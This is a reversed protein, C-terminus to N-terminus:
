LEVSIHEGCELRRALLLRTTATPLRPSGRPAVQIREAVTAGGAGPEGAFAALYEVRAEQQKGRKVLTKGRKFAADALKATAEDGAPADARAESGANLLATALLFFLLPAKTSMM